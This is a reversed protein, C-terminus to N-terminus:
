KTNIFSLMVADKIADTPFPNSGNEHWVIADTLARLAEPNTMNLVQDPKFGTRKAVAKIYSATNNESPPAWRTIVEALTDIPSGDAARRKRGYTLLTRAIARLGWKADTFQLFAPDTQNDAAGYWLSGGHRINGPNNNRLGRSRPM